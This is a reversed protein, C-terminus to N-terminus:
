LKVLEYGAGKQKEVLLMGAGVNFISEYPLPGFVVEGSRNILMELYDEDMVKAYGGCFYDVKYYQFDVVVNGLEDIFGWKKNLRAEYLGESVYDYIKEYIFDTIKNNNYDILAYKEQEDETIIGVCISNPNPRLLNYQCPIIIKGTYDVLGYTNFTREEKKYSYNGSKIIKYYPNGDPDTEVYDYEFPVVINEHIDILGWKDNLKVPFVESNALICGVDEYKLPIAIEGSEDIFGWKNNKGVPAYGNNFSSYDPIRYKFPIIVENQKNIFGWNGNKYVAALGSSFSCYDEYQPEIIEVGDESIFGWLGNKKVAFCGDEVGMEFDDYSINTIVITGSIVKALKYEKEEEDDLDRIFFMKDPKDILPEALFSKDNKLYAVVEGKDNLYFRERLWNPKGFEEHVCYVEALTNYESIPFITQINKIKM